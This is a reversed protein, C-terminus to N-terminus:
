CLSLANRIEIIMTIDQFRQAWLFFFFFFCFFFCFFVANEVAVWMGTDGARSRPMPMGTFFAIPVPHAEPDTPHPVALGTPTAAVAGPVSLAGQGVDLDVFIPCYTSHSFFFFFFFFLPSIPDMRCTLPVFYACNPPFFFFLTRPAFLHVSFCCRFVPCTLFFFFFFFFFVWGPKPGPPPKRAAASSWNV